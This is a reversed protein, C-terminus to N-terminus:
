PADEPTASSRALRSVRISYVAVIVALVFGLAGLGAVLGITDAGLPTPVTSYPNPVAERALQPVTLATVAAGAIIGLIAGYALVILLERRRISSQMRADLGLARLVVIDLRRSRLQAGVVAGVAVAALLGCGAAGVWLAIAASGLVARGAPDDATVFRANAPFDPRLAAAVGAPDATDIWLDRPLRPQESLRLQGHEVVGLDLLVSTELEAGPIAPVIAAVRGNVYIDELSFSVRGGVTVDFLDALRQSVVIPPDVIDSVNDDFSPTMRVWTTDAAVGFGQGNFNSNPPRFALLPSEAIWYPDRELVTSAAGTLAELERMEFTAFDEGTVADGSAKVDLAMIRWPGPADILEDPVDGEYVTMDSETAIRDLDLVRLVGQADAVRLTIAPTEAFGQLTATLRVGTTGIPIQPGPIDMAIAEALAKRDFSGSATTAVQALVAPAVALVSGTENGLTLTEVHLPAAATVGPLASADDILTSSFGPPATTVHLPAGARLESTQTFSDSWTTAYGAAFVLNACAVAVVVIPAAVLQLRRSVTRTALIRAVGARRTSREDLAALRPFLALGILVIAVLALAPAVVAVPDVQTGGDNAPIVPSGYLRLQWVSLAAAATVLIVVGPGALRRARGSAESPDRVTQRRASRFASGAVVAVAAAAVALPLIWIAPGTTLAADLGGGMWSLLAVAAATGAAAGLASAIAAELATTRAVDLASAGRSWLLAIENARTTTLLRGLEALTVLAIAALLLLAVPEVARLADVRAGLELATLKFRGQKELSVLQFEGRWASNIGNWATVIPGLDGATLQTTDPVITWRARPDTDLLPWASEDIVVPGSDPDKYGETLITDGLWRPDLHDNVRWVGTLTFEGNGLVLHDGAALELRDAADAQMTVEDPATAWSGDVLTAREEIGTLSMVLARRLISPDGDVIGAISAKGSVTRDVSMPIVRGDILFSRAIAARVDRDQREADEDLLFSVRLALETGARAALGSQVGATAAQSLYGVVGVSLGSVLAVVGLLAGFLTAHQRLRKASLV